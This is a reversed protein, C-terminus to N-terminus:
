YLSKFHLYKKKFLYVSKQRERETVNLSACVLLSGMLLTYALLPRVDFSPASPPDVKIFDYLRGTM